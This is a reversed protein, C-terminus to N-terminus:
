GYYYAKNCYFQNLVPLAPKGGRHMVPASVAPQPDRLHLQLASFTVVIKVGLTQTFCGAAVEAVLTLFLQPQLSLGGARDAQLQYLLVSVPQLAVVVEVGHAQRLPAFLVVGAGDATSTNSEQIVPDYV